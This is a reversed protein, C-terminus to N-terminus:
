FNTEAHKIDGQGSLLSNFQQNLVSLDQKVM